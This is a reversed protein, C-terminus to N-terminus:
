GFHHYCTRILSLKTLEESLDSCTLGTQGDTHIHTHTQKNDAQMHPFTDTRRSIHTQGDPYIHVQEDPHKYTHPYTQKDM